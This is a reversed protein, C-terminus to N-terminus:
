VLIFFTETPVSPTEAAGAKSSSGGGRRERAERETKLSHCRTCLPQCNDPVDRGGDCLPVIHDIEEAERVKGVAHCMRCLPEMRLIRLNRRQLKRGRVRAVKRQQQGISQPEPLRGLSAGPTLTKLQGEVEVISEEVAGTSLTVTNTIDYETGATGGVMQVSTSQVGDSNIFSDTDVTMGAEAAWTSSVITAILSENDIAEATWTISGDELDDGLGIDIWRPERGGSQGGSSVYQFGTPSRPRVRIDVAFVTGPAWLRSLFRSYDITWPKREIETKCAQDVVRCAM